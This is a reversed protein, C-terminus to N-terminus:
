LHKDILECAAPPRYVTYRPALRAKLFPDVKFDYDTVEDIYSVVGACRCSYPNNVIRFVADM